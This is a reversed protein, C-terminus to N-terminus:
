SAEDRRRSLTPSPGDSSRSFVLMRSQWLSWPPFLTTRSALWRCAIACLTHSGGPSTWANHCSCPSITYGPIDRRPGPVRSNLGGSAELEDPDRPVAM